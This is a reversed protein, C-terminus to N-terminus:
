ERLLEEALALAQEPTRAKQFLPHEGPKARTIDWSRLSVVPTGLNLSFSIESLTGYRGDLAVCVDATRVILINRGIGMGTAVPVTIYPNAERTDSGPLIGVTVGGGRRAGKAAREMVGGLGGCVLTHGSKAILFGLEEARALNDEECDSGCGLVGIIMDTGGQKGTKTNTTSSTHTDYFTKKRV